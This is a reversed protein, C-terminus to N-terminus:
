AQRRPLTLLFKAGDETGAVLEVKGGHQEVTRKVIALGLGTGRTKTTYFADFARAAQEPTFGPGNDEIAVELMDRNNIQRESLRIDIEVPDECAAVSNELLNRLANGVHFRDIECVPDCAADSLRLQAERGERQDALQAWMEEILEALDIPRTHLQVPAAYQRVDEFLEGLDEQAAVAADILELLDPQDKLRRALRRLNAQSRALANRSEHTLGTMAEGIAALRESQVLRRQAQTLETIDQGISLVGIVADDYKLPKAWWRIERLAGSKAVIVNVHAEIITDNVATQFLERIREHDSTPLFTEFWDQGQVEDLTHGTLQELFPNFRVIRGRTDLVLIIVHATQIISENLEHEQQLAHETVKRETVDRIIGTFLGLREVESVALDIPFTAGDKRRGLVERGIGIIRPQRSELYRAIYGDHEECYPPPMLMSVNQGILENPAYGFMTATAPNVGQIIGRRDITIVADTATNLIARMREESERLAREAQKRQSVDRHISVFNTRQGADDFLPTIFLEAHYPTGDKRYNTLECMFPRGAALERKLRDLMERDSGKGQLVRPTRGLLEDASYGTIRCLADNVFVIRPGPWDLEDETILIGEGLNNIAEVLFQLERAQAAVRQKLFDITVPGTEAAVKDATDSTRDESPSKDNKRSPPRNQM